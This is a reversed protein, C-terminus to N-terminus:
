VSVKGENVSSATAPTNLVNEEELMAYKDIVIGVVDCGGKLVTSSVVGMLGANGGGYILSLKNGALARGM